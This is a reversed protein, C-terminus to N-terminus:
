CPQPPGLIKSRVAKCVNCWVRLCTIDPFFERRLDRQFGKGYNMMAHMTVRNWAPVAGGTSIKAQSGWNNFTLVICSLNCLSISHLGARRNAFIHTHFHQLCTRRLLHCSILPSQIDPYTASWDQHMAALYIMHFQRAPLVCTSDAYPVQSFVAAVACCKAQRCSNRM